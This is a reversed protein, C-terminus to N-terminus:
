ARFRRPVDFKRNFFDMELFVDPKLLFETEPSGEHPQDSSFDVQSRFTHHPDAATPPTGQVPAPQAALVWDAV